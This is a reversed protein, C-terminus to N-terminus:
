HVSQSALGVATAVLQANSSARSGDPMTLVDELGIRTDLRLRIAEAVLLWASGEEGHLLVVDPVGDLVELIEGASRLASDRETETVEVLVRLCDRVLGPSPRATRGSGRTSTPSSTASKDDSTFRM